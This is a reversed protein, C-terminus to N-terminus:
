RSGQDRTPGDAGILRPIGPKGEAKVEKKVAAINVETRPLIKLINLHGAYDNIFFTYEDGVKPLTEPGSAALSARELVAEKVEGKLISSHKLDLCSYVIAGFGLTFHVKVPRAVAIIRAKARAEDVSMKDGTLVVQGSVALSLVTALIM